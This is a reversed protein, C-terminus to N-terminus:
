RPVPTARFRVRFRPRGEDRNRAPAGSCAASPRRPDCRGVAGANRESRHAPGVRPSRTVAFAAAAIILLACVGGALM